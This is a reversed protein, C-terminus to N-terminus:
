TRPGVATGRRVGVGVGRSPPPAAPARGVQRVKGRRAMALAAFAKATRQAPKNFGLGATINPAPREVSPREPAHSGGRNAAKTRRRLVGRGHPRPPM